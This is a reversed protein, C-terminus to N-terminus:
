FPNCIVFATSVNLSLKEIHVFRSTAGKVRESGPTVLM